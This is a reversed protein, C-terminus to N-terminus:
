GGGAKSVLTDFAKATDAETFNCHGNGVPALVTLLKANGAARVQEPYVAHFRSPVTPDFINWQMVLPVDIKGTLTVNSQVYAMAAASGAYRHVRRNFAADDGFGQYVTKHNDVPMGGARHELERLVMYYLSLTPM